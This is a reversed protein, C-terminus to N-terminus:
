HDRARPFASVPLNKIETAEVKISKEHEELMGRPNDRHYVWLFDPRKSFYHRFFLRNHLSPEFFFIQNQYAKHDLAKLM